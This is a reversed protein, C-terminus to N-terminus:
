EAKCELDVERAASAEPEAEASVEEWEVVASGAAAWAVVVLVERASDRLLLAAGVPAEAALTLGPVLAGVEASRRAEEM